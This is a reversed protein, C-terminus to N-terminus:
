GILRRARLYEAVLLKADQHQGDVGYNLQRMDNASIKGSIRNPLAAIESHRELSSRRVIPVADYPPFYSRDDQLVVLDLAAILGDTNSAAIVDVQQSELARYLLGLDMVRPAEAFRLGYKQALGPFGDKRELFEYGVGMRWRPAYRAADSITKINQRRAEPGRMVIAFSNDFGLPPLVELDFQRRYENKVVDFVAASGAMPPQKLIAALATGTYEVYLDIRGALLAQHCIYTGALYFRRDIAPTARTPQPSSANAELLQALMEGLILQETFNKTGVTITNRRSTCGSAAFALMGLAFDRRSIGGKM